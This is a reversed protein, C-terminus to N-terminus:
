LSLVMHIGAVNRQYDLNSGTSSRLLYTYNVGVSLWRRFSYDISFGGGLDNDERSNGSYNSNIYILNTTTSINWGWNHTWSLKFNRVNAANGIGDAEQLRQSTVLGVTSYTLPFWDVGIEWSLNSSGGRASADFFKQNWGVKFYGTTQYTAQWTLGGLVSYQKSDLDGPAFGRKYSLRMLNGQILLSTNPLIQYFLTSRVADGNRDQIRTRRRNNSYRRELHYYATEFRPMGVKAVGYKFGLQVDWLRYKDPSEFETARNGSQSGSGRVEHFRRYGAAGFFSLRSTPYVSFKAKTDADLYNDGHSHTYYGQEIGMDMSFQTINSEFNYKLRPTTVILISEKPNKDQLLVNDTFLVKSRLTPYFKGNLAPIGKDVNGASFIAASYLCMFVFTLVCKCHCFIDVVLRHM